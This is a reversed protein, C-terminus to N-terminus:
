AGSFACPPTAPPLGELDGNAQFSRGNIGGTSAILVGRSNRTGTADPLDGTAIPGGAVGRCTTCGTAFIGKLGDSIVGIKVGTGDLSLQKRVLDAQLIADGETTVAGARRVAYSPLRVLDVFPLAAVARLRRVPVRAQVRRHAADTMEITVGSGALLRVNEDTVQRLLVYVQVENDVNIRLTRGTMADQVSKALAEISLPQAAAARQPLSQADDQLVSRALEELVTTLKPVDAQARIDNQQFAISVLAFILGALPIRRMVDM